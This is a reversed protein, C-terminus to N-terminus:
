RGTGPCRRASTQFRMHSLRLPGIPLRGDSGRQHSCCLSPCAASEPHRSSSTSFLREAQRSATQRYIHRDTQKHTHIYTHTHTHKTKYQYTDIHIRMALSSINNLFRQQHQCVHVVGPYTRACACINMCFLFNYESFHVSIGSLYLLCELCTMNLYEFFHCPRLSVYYGVHLGDPVWRHPRWEPHHIIGDVCLIVAADPSLVGGCGLSRATITRFTDTEHLSVVNTQRM